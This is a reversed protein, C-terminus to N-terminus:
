SGPVTLALSTQKTKIDEGPTEGTSKSKRAAKRYRGQKLWTALSGLMMGIALTAFLWVFLPLELTLAPNGPNFPDITFSVWTRNSVALVILIVAIPVLILAIFLRNLM